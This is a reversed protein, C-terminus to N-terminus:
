QVGHMYVGCEECEECEGDRVIHIGQANGMGELSAFGGPPLRCRATDLPVTLPFRSFRFSLCTSLSLAFQLQFLVTEQM